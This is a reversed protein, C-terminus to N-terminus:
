GAPRGNGPHVKRYGFGPLEDYAGISAIGIHAGVKGICVNGTHSYFFQYGLALVKGYEEPQQCAACGPLRDRGVRTM